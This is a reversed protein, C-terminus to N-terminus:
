WPRVSAGPGLAQGAARQQAALMLGARAAEERRLSTHAAEAALHQIQNKGKATRGAGGSTAQGEVSDWVRGAINTPAARRAAATATAMAAASEAWGAGRAGGSIEIVQSTSSADIGLERMARKDLVISPQPPPPPPPLPLLTSTYGFAASVGGGSVAAVTTSSATGAASVRQANSFISNAARRAGLSAGVAAGDLSRYVPATATSKGGMESMEVGSGRVRKDVSIMGVVGDERGRKVGAIVVSDVVDIDSDDSYDIFDM